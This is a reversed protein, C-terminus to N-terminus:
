VETQFERLYNGMTRLIFICVNLKGQLTSIHGRGTEGGKGKSKPEPVRAM